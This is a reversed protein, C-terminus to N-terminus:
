FSSRDLGTLHRARQWAKRKKGQRLLDRIDSDVLVRFIRQREAERSVVKMLEKRVRGLLTVFLQYEKGYSRELEQRIRRALAPSEGSTSIAILLDGRSFVSPVLFTSDGPSTASNFLCRARRAEKGAQRNVEPDDTAAVALIAGQLDGETYPRAEYRIKGEEHLRQLTRSVTPSIVRVKAGSSLLSSVKRGAVKGGGIVVVEKERLDLYIPYYRLRRM